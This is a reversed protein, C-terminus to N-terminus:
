GPRSALARLEAAVREIVPDFDNATHQRFIRVEPYWPMGEGETGYRWEAHKPAMVWVPRGLAGGLHVVATCVSITLDLAGLLAATEGYDDIAEQWHHVQCGTGALEALEEDCPTYQLSVFHAPTRMVPLLQMLRLSRRLTGTRMTGGRWSLGVKLGAGLGALRSRWYEVRAPDARLYGHHRPFDPLASRRLLPLSGAPIQLDAARTGASILHAPSSAFWASSGPDTAVITAAPFSRRYLDALKPSCEVICHGAETMVEPVISAFMIEDGIGQEAHILLAKGALPEGNWRPVAFRRMPSPLARRHWRYEYGRWGAAYDQAMLARLGTAFLADPHGPDLALVAQFERDADDCRGLAQLAMAYSARPDAVRPLAALAREYHPLSDAPRNLDQLTNGLNVRIGAHQPHLVVARELVALSRTPEGKLRLAYGLDSLAEPDDPALVLTTEFAAIAEEVQSMAMHALGLNRQVHVSRPELRLAERYAAVAAEPAGTAKLVVGLLNHWEANRPELRTARTFHQVAPGLRGLRALVQGLQAHANADRPSFAVIKELCTAAQEFQGTSTLARALNFLATHERPNSDVARRLLGIGAELRGTECCLTGLMCLVRADRPARHLIGRYLSEALAHQGSGHAAVARAFEQQVAQQSM